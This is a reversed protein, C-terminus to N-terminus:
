FYAKYTINFDIKTLSDKKVVFPFINGQGDWINAYYLSDEKVFISYKGEPLEFEFFGKDNLFKSAILKTNIKRFFTTYAIKEAMDRYTLEYIFVERSVPTGDKQYTNPSPMFDGEWFKVIGYVGQKITPEEIIEVVGNETSFDCSFIIIASLLLLIQNLITKM